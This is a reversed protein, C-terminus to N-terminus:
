LSSAKIAITALEFSDTEYIDDHNLSDPTSSTLPRRLDELKSFLQLIKENMM